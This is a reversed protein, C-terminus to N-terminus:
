KLIVMKKTAVMSGSQLRYLYVGSAATQGREDRGDWRISYRGAETFADFPKAVLQGMINYIELTTQGPAALDFNIVTSANFPNPYNQLLEFKEPVNSLKYLNESPQSIACATSGGPGVFISGGVGTTTVPGIACAGQASDNSITWGGSQNTGYNNDVRITAFRQYLSSTQVNSVRVYATGNNSVILARPSINSFRVCFRAADWSLTFWVSDVDANSKVDIGSYAFGEYYGPRGGIKRWRAQASPVSVQALPNDETIVGTDGDVQPDALRYRTTLRVADHTEVWTSDGYDACDSLQLVHRLPVPVDWRNQFVMWGVTRLASSTDISVPTTTQIWAYQNPGCSRDIGSLSVLPDSSEVRVFELPALFNDSYNVVLSFNTLPYNNRLRIPVRVECLSQNNWATDGFDFLAQYAPVTVLGNTYHVAAPVLSDLNQHCDMGYNRILIPHWFVLGTVNDTPAIVRFKLKYFAPGDVVSTGYGGAKNGWVKILPGFLFPEELGGATRDTAIVYPAVPALVNNDYQIWAHIFEDFPYNNDCNVTVEIIDGVLATEESIDFTVNITQVTVSGDTRSEIPNALCGGPGCDSLYINWQPDVGAPGWSVPLTVGHVNRCHTSLNLQLFVDSVNPKMRPGCSWKWLVLNNNEDFYTTDIGGQWGVATVGEFTVSDPLDFVFRFAQITDSGIYVPVIATEGMWITSSGIIAVDNISGCSLPYMPEQPLPPEIPANEAHAVVGIMAIALIAIVSLLVLGKRVSM